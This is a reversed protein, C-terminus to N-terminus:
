LQAGGKQALIDYNHEAKPNHLKAELADLKGTLDKASKLLPEAKPNAKLLDNRQTLQSKVARLSNVMTTLQSINGRLALVQRHQEELEAAPIQVRPDPQVVVQSTLTKGEVTLRLTYTGPLVLPGRKPNGGDWKAHKILDPANYRLAWAIRNVGGETTLVTKKVPEEPADPADEPEEEEEKSSLTAVIAGKADLVDLTIPDKPKKKLYYNVIAGKPPNDFGKE